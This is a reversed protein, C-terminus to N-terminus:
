SFGGGLDQLRVWCKRIEIVEVLRFNVYGDQSCRSRDGSRNSAEWSSKPLTWQMAVGAVVEWADAAQIPRPMKFGIVGGGQAAVAM